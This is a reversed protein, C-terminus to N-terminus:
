SCTEWRQLQPVERGHGADGAVGPVGGARRCRRQDARATRRAQGARRHHQSHQRHNQHHEDPAERDRGSWRTRTPRHGGAKLATPGGWRRLAARLPRLPEGPLPVLGLLKGRLAQPLIKPARAQPPAAGCLGPPLKPLQAPRLGDTGVGYPGPQSTRQNQADVRAQVPKLSFLERAHTIPGPAPRNRRSSLLTRTADPGALRHVPRLPPARSASLSGEGARGPSGPM